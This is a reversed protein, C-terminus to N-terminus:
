AFGMASGIQYVLLAMVYAVVSMYVFQFITWKWSNTERRVIINTPLCQLAYVYFVLLSLCTLPTFLASGDDRQSNQLTDVLGAEDEEDAAFIIAMTSVFVERAAFSTLVGIGIEWNYGLPEIVPEIAHGLQGAVTQEIAQEPPVEEGSRPFTTAAWIIISLILIVTGAKQLFVKGRDFLELLVSKFAPMRYPPLEMILPPSEGRIVTKKLIFAVVFASLTGLAYVFFLMGTQLLASAQGGALVAIMIFYVPLRATCSMWPAVMITALRDKPSEIVRTAMIGPIACAYSSLLPVFSRGHLGVRNMVRDLVFAARAMYGTSELLGIFFFLMLIQPLFIVVGGVGAIIGDVIMDRFLGEPLLATAGDGLWGFLGEIWGMPYEALRFISYFLAGLVGVLVFWGAVPHLMVKDIKETMSVKGPDQREMSGELTTAIAQYRHINLDQRWNEQEKDLRKSWQDALAQAAQPPQTVGPVTERLHGGTLLLLAEMKARRADPYNGHSSLCSAIAEVAADLLPPRPCRFTSVPLEKKAMAIRLQPLGVGKHGEATLVTCGLREAMKEADIKIGMERATDMMNLVLIVPLGMEMVQTALFLNRELNSADVICIVGTPSPSDKRRSLLVDQAVAEDPSRAALSYCGPLDILRVPHGHQDYAIGEKREVTVGPYNGVKQRLGTLANFITTKGSNPNGMVAFVATEKQPVSKRPANKPTAPATLSDPPQM